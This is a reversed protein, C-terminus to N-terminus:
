TKNNKLRKLAEEITICNTEDMLIDQIMRDKASKYLKEIIENYTDGKSGFEKIKEKLERSIQIRTNM